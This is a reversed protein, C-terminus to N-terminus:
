GTDMKGKEYISMISLPREREDMFGRCKDMWPCRRNRCSNYLTITHGCHDCKEVRGGLEETRCSIIARLIKKEYNTTYYNKMYENCYERFIKNVTLKSSSSM